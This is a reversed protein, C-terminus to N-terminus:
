MTGKKLGSALRELEKCANKGHKDVLNVFASGVVVGRAGSSLVQKVHPKKSIGFGVVLPLSGTQSLAEKVANFTREEIKEREGTVGLLSVLYVFGKARSIIRRVRDPPTNPAILFIPDVEYKECLSLLNESEEVPLDSVLIGDVGEKKCRKLFEEEGYQLVLNYYTMVVFPIEVGAERLDGAVEFVNDPTCGAKLARDMAGQITPGDAIPDSFPIGIELIDVNKSLCAFLKKSSSIDPDGLTLYGILAGEGRERLRKFTDDLRSM